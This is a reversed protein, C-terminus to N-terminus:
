VMEYLTDTPVHSAWAPLPATGWHLAHADSADYYESRPFAAYLPFSALPNVNGSYVNTALISTFDPLVRLVTALYPLPLPLRHFSIPHCIKHYRLLRFTLGQLAPHPSLRVDPESPPHPFV